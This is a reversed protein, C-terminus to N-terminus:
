PTLRIWMVPEIDVGEVPPWTFLTNGGCTYPTPSTTSVPFDEPRVPFDTSGLSVGGVFIEVSIQLTTIGDALGIMEFGDATYPGSTFGDFTIISEAGAVAGAFTEVVQVNMYGGRGTGDTRFKLYVSGTVSEVTPADEGSASVTSQMYALFSDDTAEWEGILCEDCPADTVTTTTITETREAGPTTTIAYFLYQLDECGGTATAPAPGWDGSTGRWASLGTGEVRTEVTFAKESEFEIL